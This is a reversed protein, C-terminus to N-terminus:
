NAEIINTTKNIKFGYISLVFIFKHYGMQVFVYKTIKQFYNSEISITLFM